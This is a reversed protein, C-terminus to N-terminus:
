AEEIRVQCRPGFTSWQDRREGLLARLEAYTGQASRIPRDLNDATDLARKESIDNRM